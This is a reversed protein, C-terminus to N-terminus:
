GKKWFTLVILRALRQHKRGGRKRRKRRSRDRYNREESKRRNRRVDARDTRGRHDSTRRGRSRERRPSHVEEKVVPKGELCRDPRISERCPRPLEPHVSTKPEESKSTGARINEEESYQYTCESEEEPARGPGAKSKCAIGELM